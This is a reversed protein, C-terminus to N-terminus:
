VEVLGHTTAAALLNFPVAEESIITLARAYTIPAYIGLEKDESILPLAEGYRYDGARLSLLPQSKDGWEVRGGLSKHLRLVIKLIQRNKGMSTGNAPLEPKLLTAKSIYGYGVTIFSFEREYTLNGHGDAKKTPLTAYDALADVHADHLHPVQITNSPPNVDLSVSCDVYVADNLMEGSGSLNLEEIYAEGGRDVVLWLSDDEDEDGPMVEITMVKSPTGDRGPAMPHRAWGIVDGRLDLTCSCLTGDNCLVWIIEGYQCSLMAFDKIGSRLMHRATISIDANIYGEDDQRYQMVNLSRGGIGAYIVYNDMAKPLTKNSGDNLTVSLDFTMPTALEGTDMWISRGAGVLFRKQNVIWNIRSGHMDTEQLYIAHTALVTDSGDIEESFTFDTFRDGTDATPTRSAFITNPENDTAALYWRGGKFTQASPYNGASDFLRDGTFTLQTLVFAPDSSSHELKAPKHNPHVIYMVGKNMVCSLRAIESKQYPSAIELPDGFGDEVLEGEDTWIRVQEHTFEIIFKGDVGADFLSLKVELKLAHGLTGVYLTGPRKVLAGFRTPIFNECTELGTQYRPSDIRGGMYPTIEGSIFNNQLVTYEAM